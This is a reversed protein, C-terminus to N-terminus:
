GDRAVVCRFAAFEETSGNFADLDVFAAVGPLRGRTTFQWIRWERGGALRPRGFIGQVWLPYSAFTAAVYLYYFEETVYLVPRCGWETEVAELFRQLEAGFEDVSPRRECNGRFELDVAPPLGDAKTRAAAAIFNGAQEAGPRCLSFFHYAGPVVGSALAASWNVGFLSDRFTAGQSAKIYAFQARRGAMQGWDIRGQHHSVDVGQVPYREFSPETIQVVGQYLLVAVLAVLGATSAAVFSLPRGSM